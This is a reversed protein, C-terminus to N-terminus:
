GGERSQETKARRSAGAAKAPWTGLKLQKAGGRQADRTVGAGRRRRGPRASAEGRSAAGCQWGGSSGEVAARWRQLGVPAVEQKQCDGCTVARDVAARAEGATKERVRWAAGAM